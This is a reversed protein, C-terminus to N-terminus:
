LGNKENKWLKLNMQDYASCKIKRNILQGSESRTEATFFADPQIELIDFSNCILTSLSVKKIENLQGITFAINATSQSELPANEYYFRDGFKLDRFQEAL